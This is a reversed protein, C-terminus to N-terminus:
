RKGFFYVVSVSAVEYGPLNFGGSARVKLGPAVLAAVSLELRALPVVPLSYGAINPYIEKAEREDAFTGDPGFQLGTATGEVKGVGIGWTLGVQVREKITTFPRFSQYEVGTVVASGMAHTSGYPTEVCPGNAVSFCETESATVVSDKKFRKRVFSVSWDGGLERGRAVGIRFESGGVDVSTAASEATGFLISMKEPVQWTPVFSGIVGWHAADQASAAGTSALFMFVGITLIRKM